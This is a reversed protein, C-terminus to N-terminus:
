FYTNQISINEKLPVNIGGSPDLVLYHDIKISSLTTYKVEKDESHFLLADRKKQKQKQKQKKVVTM